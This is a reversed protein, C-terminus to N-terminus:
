RLIEVTLVWANTMGGAYALLTAPILWFFGSAHGTVLLIGAIIPALAACQMQTIWVFLTRVTAQPPRDRVHRCEAATIVVWILISSLLLEIGFALVSQHPVLGFISFTLPGSFVLLAEAVRNVLYPTNIIRSMNISLAVFLLGILAAAAGCQATFFGTWDAQTM